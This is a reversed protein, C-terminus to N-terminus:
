FYLPGTFTAVGDGFTDLWGVATGHNAVTAKKITILATGSAPYNFTYGSYTGDAVYYTDGRTLAAPLSTYANTWDSGSGTGTAGQRVFHDAARAEAACALAAVLAFRVGVKM